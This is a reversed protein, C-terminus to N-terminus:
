STAHSIFHFKQCRAQIKKSLLRKNETYNVSVGKIKISTDVRLNAVMM